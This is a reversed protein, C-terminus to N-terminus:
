EREIIPCFLVARERGSLIILSLWIKSREWWPNRRAELVIPLFFSPGGSCELQPVQDSPDKTGGQHAPSVGADSWSNL